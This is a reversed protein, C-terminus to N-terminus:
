GGGIAPFVGLEEGGALARDMGVAQNDVFVVRTQAAPVGLRALVQGVTEGAVIEVDVAPKGDAFRRLTAFLNVKVQPM